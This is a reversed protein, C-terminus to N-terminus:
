SGIKVAVVKVIQKNLALCAENSIDIHGHRSPIGGVTDLFTSPFLSFTTSFGFANRILCLDFQCISM